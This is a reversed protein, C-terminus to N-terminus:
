ELPPIKLKQGVKILNPDKLQDRNAEFIKMYLGAKGYYTKALGSLTDGPVVLHLREVAQTVAASKAAAAPAAPPAAAHVEIANVTNETEVLVNFERMVQKKADLSPAVGSLTVVKGEVSAQLNKVGLGKANIQEIAAAVKGEFSKFLDMSVERFTRDNYVTCGNLVFAGVEPRGKFPAAPASLTLRPNSPLLAM